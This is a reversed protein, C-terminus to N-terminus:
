FLIKAMNVTDLTTNDHLTRIFLHVTLHCAHLLSGSEGERYKYLDTIDVSKCSGVAKTKVCKGIAASEFCIPKM